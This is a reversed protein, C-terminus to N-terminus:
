DDGNEEGADDARTEVRCLVALDCTACAQRADVPDVAASGAVFADGLAPLATHWHALVADFGCDGLLREQTAASMGPWADPERAVGKFACDRERAGLRAFLVAAIRATDLGLCYLPLQPETVRADLWQRPNPRGTKYDIVALAGDALEDLRDIRTRLRLRGVDIDHREEIAAIRFPPRRRELELWAAAMAALRRCELERLRPPLDRRSRREHQRVAAEAEAALLEMQARRDLALLQAHGAIRRWFRELVGHALNGRALADLGLDPSELREAHLRHHAFARFPCLAQDKLIATGGSFPAGAPLAEAKEDAIEEFACPAALIALAPDHSPALDPAGPAGPAIGALLPSPRLPAGDLQGPWSAIVEPAAGFLRHAVREAFARERAADAHPMHLRSQMPLPLFPNPRPPAPFAGEHLGLVWLADFSFGAAELMGLVRVRGEAGEPQFVTEAALRGLVALAEGRRMPQAVRDLAALEGLIGGFHDLAQFERSGLGREGPWGCQELLAAFEEAWAGPLRRRSDRCADRLRALIAAFRPLDHLARGLDALAWEKHGRRRLLRDAAARSFEEAGAGGLYPSRLLWGVEELRLPEGVALIRLAAHVVGEGALPTGLSLTLGAPTEVTALCAPPDLEARFIREILQQYEALRPAVVGLAAQPDRELRWRVWRACRRVEDEMDAAVCTAVSGVTLIPEHFVVRCGQRALAEGLRRVAPSVDDFGALALTAPLRCRGEAVAATVAKWSAGRERWGNRRLLEFWRTRWRLFALQDENAEAPSFEAEYVLLLEHAEGARRAAQPLQLLDRGSAALDDAIVKEWLYQCQAAGLPIATPDFEQLQRAVWADISLIQPTPWAAAGTNAQRLDYRRALERALRKNATLVTGGAAAIDLLDDIM